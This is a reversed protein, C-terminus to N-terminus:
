QRVNRRREPAKGHEAIVIEPRVVRREAMLELAGSKAHEHVLVHRQRRRELVYRDAPEVIRPDTLRLRARGEFACTVHLHQEHV